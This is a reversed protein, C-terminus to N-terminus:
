RKISPSGPHRRSRFTMSTPGGGLFMLVETHTKKYQRRYVFWGTSVGRLRKVEVAWQDHSIWITRQHCGYQANDVISQYIQLAYELEFPIHLWEYLGETNIFTSIMLARETMEVVWFRQSQGSFLVMANKGSWAVLDFTCIVYLMIKTMLDVIRYEICLRIDM